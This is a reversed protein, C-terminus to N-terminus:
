DFVIPCLCTPIKSRRLRRFTRQVARADRDRGIYLLDAQAAKLRQMISFRLAVACGDRHAYHM